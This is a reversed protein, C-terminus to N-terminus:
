PCGCLRLGPCGCLWLGSCRCLRLESCGCLWLGPRWLVSRWLWVVFWLIFRLRQQLLQWLPPTRLRVSRWLLSPPSLAVQLVFVRLVFSGCLVLPGCLV